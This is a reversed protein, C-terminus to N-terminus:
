AGGRATPEPSRAATAARCFVQEWRDLWRERTPGAEAEARAADGLKRRLGPDALLRSLCGALGAVDGLPFLLGNEGHRIGERATPVDSMVVPLGCAQAERCVIPFGGERETPLVFVDCLCLHTPLEAPEVYGAFRFRASLHRRRVERELAPREPGDGMVLYVADPHRAALKEAARVLDLPRKRPRLSSLHGVVPQGPAIALRALLRADRPVPQFREPDAFNPIREVRAVGLSCLVAELHPGLAVVADVERMRAVLERAAAEPYIGDRLGFTPSGLALLVTPLGLERCREPAFWCQSERGLVVLDPREDRVLRTLIRGLREGNERAWEPPPPRSGSRYELAFWDVALGPEQWALGSRSEGPAAPPAEALVRVRHGRAALGPLLAEYLVPGGTTALARTGNSLYPLPALVCLRLRTGRQAAAAVGEDPPPALPWPEIKGAAIERLRAEGLPEGFMENRMLLRQWSLAVAIERAREWHSADRAARAVDHIAAPGHELEDRAIARFAEAVRRHFEDGDLSALVAYLAGGGGEVLEAVAAELGGRCRHRARAEQLRRDAPLDVRDEVGFREGAFDWLLEALLSFHALEQEIKRRAEPDHDTGSLRGTRLLAARAEPPLERVVRAEKWAQARLWGLQGALPLGRAFHARAVEAEGAWFPALCELLWRKRADLGDM